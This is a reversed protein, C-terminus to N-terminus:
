IKVSDLGEEQEFGKALKAKADMQANRRGDGPSM